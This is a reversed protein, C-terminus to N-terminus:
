FFPINKIFYNHLECFRTKNDKLESFDIGSRVSNIIDIMVDIFEDIKNRINNM